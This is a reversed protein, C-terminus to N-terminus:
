CGSSYFRGNVGWVVNGPALNVLIVVSVLRLLIVVLSSWNGGVNWEGAVDGGEDRLSQLVDGRPGLRLSTCTRVNVASRRVYSGVNVTSRRGHSGIKVVSRRNHPRVNM